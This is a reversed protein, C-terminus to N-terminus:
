IEDASRAPLREQQRAARASVPADYRFITRLGRRATWLPVIRFAHSLVCACIRPVKQGIM